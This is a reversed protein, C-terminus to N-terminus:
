SPAAPTAAATARALGVVVDVIQRQTIVVRAAATDAETADEFRLSRRCRSNVSGSIDVGAVVDHGIVASIIRCLPTWPDQILWTAVVRVIDAEM